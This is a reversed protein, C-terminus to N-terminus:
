VVIATLVLETVFHLFRTQSGGGEGKEGERGRRRGASISM